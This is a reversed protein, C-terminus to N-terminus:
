EEAWSPELVAQFSGGAAVSFGSGLVISRGAKFTVDASPGVTTGAEATVRECAEISHTSLYTTAVVHQYSDAPCARLVFDIGAITGDLGVTLGTGSSLECFPDCPVDDFLEDQYGHYSDSSTKLFYTGPQLGTLNFTSSYSVGSYSVQTGSADYANVQGSVSYGTDAATVTGQLTGLRHLTFDVGGTTAAIDVSVPAGDTVTCSPSCDLGDFLQNAFSSTTTRVYYTGPQLRGVDYTGDATSYGNRWYQGTSGYVAVDVDPLPTGDVASRVIGAISGLRQLAFDVGSADNNLAVAVPTGSALDCGDTCPVDDYVENLYDYTDTAVYYSDPQLGGFRYSGDSATYGSAEYYYLPDYVEVRRSVLPMGTADDTLTGSLSGLRDLAFDVGSTTAGAAVAVKDGVTVDCSYGLCPHDDYIENRHSNTDTRLYYKGAPLGGIEYSGGAGTYYDDLYSGTLSYLEVYGALSTGTVSETVTGAVGGGPTLALDVATVLETGVVIPTGDDAYCYSYSPCPLNDYIEDIMGAAGLTRVYYTGADLGSFRYTGDAATYTDDLFYSYGYYLGVRVGDLPAGTDNRTVTGAIGVEPGVNLEYAGTGGGFGGVRVWVEQGTTMDLVVQSQATGASDDNCALETERGGDPCGDFISLVTDISSGFTDFAVPGDLAATYRFWVDLPPTPGDCSASGDNSASDNSGTLTGDGIVSAAACADNAPASFAAVRNGATEASAALDLKARLLRLTGLLRRLREQRRPDPDPLARQAPPAPGAGAVRGSRRDDLDHEVGLDRLETALRRLLDAAVPAADPQRLRYELAAAVRGLWLGSGDPFTDLDLREDLRVLERTLIPRLPEDANAASPTAAPEEGQAPLALAACLLVLTASFGLLPRAPFRMPRRKM